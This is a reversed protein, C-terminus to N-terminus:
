KKQNESGALARDHYGTAVEILREDPLVKARGSENHCGKCAFDIVLYPQSFKGAKDFQSRGNPNIAMLHTRIDGSFRAPDGEASKTVRPMHCDICDAHRRDTIKQFQANNFHCNQCTAKADLGRAYKTTEHPNHCDICRMVRKKSEFLEDYQQQHHIFGDQAEIRTPEGQSHCQGCLESDRNVLMRVQYPANIHNSGPGHCAECGTGDEAWTGVIGPLSDQHGEPVYGTTHCAGCDFPRKTGADFSVWEDGLKLTPNYLNYQTKSMTDGTIIYGQQDIFLAKWGYGGIVYAVDHWTYGDPAAKVESSPYQPPTGDVVKNLEYAHGSKEYSAYLEKHCEQCADSGVYTAPRYDLGAEGQPGAPGAPGTPGTPGQPGPPGSPGIDGPPGPPGAQGVCATITILALLVAAVFVIRRMDGGELSHERVPTAPAVDLRKLVGAPM